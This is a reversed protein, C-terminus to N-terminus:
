MFHVARHVSCNCTVTYYVYSIWRLSMGLLCGQSGDLEWLSRDAWVRWFGGRMWHQGQLLVGRKRVDAWGNSAVKQEFPGLVVVVRAVKRLISM